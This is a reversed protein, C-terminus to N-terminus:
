MWPDMHDDHQPPGYASADENVAKGWGKCGAGKAHMHQQQHQLMHQVHQRMHNMAAGVVPARGLHQWMRGKGFVKGWGKMGKCKGKGKAKWGHADLICQFDHDKAHIVNKQAFCNGCLDYNPCTTCKWRPGAIPAAGCQDCTVGLHLLPSALWWPRHDVWSSEATFDDLLPLAAEYLQEVFSVKVEFAQAQLAILLSRLTDGLLPADPGGGQAIAGIPAAFEELAPYRAVHDSLIVLFATITTNTREKVARNISDMKRTVRQTIMPLWQVFLSAFVKPTLIGDAQLAKFVKLLM